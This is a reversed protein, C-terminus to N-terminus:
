IGLENILKNYIENMVNFAKASLEYAKQFKVLNMGEEDVDVSSISLRQTNISNTIDSQNQAFRKYAARDVGIESVMSQLFAMPKGQKFMSEDSKLAMMDLLKGNDSVGNDVNKSTVIKRPESIIDDAIEINGATMHYYSAETSRFETLEDTETLESKSGTINDKYVFMDIGQQGDLDTGDNHINNFENSFTRLFENMESMYHAIGKFAISNGIAGNKDNVDDKLEESLYFKYSFSKKGNNDVETVEFDTYEYDHGDITIYGQEPANLKYIDNITTDNLIIEKDGKNGSATGSLNRLNNGDRLKVIADLSGQTATGFLNLDDGTDEWVIDYLGNVDNQNDKNQRVKCYLNRSNFNNVIAEGNFKLLTSKQGINNKGKNITKESFEVKGYSSLEDILVARQDRLDNANQGSFEIVDIQQNLAAVRKTISNIRDVQNKIETNLDAQVNQLNEYLNNFYETFSQAQLSVATRKEQSSTDNSLNSLSNFFNDFMTTFGNEDTENFYNEISALYENITAYEGTLANSKRYKDDYYLSREQTIEIATTGTGIMGVTNNVSQPNGARTSVIQRTYGETEANSINHATTSIQAMSTTLGSLAIDFGFFTSSM